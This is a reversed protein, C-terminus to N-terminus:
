NFVLEIGKKLVVLNSIDKAELINILRKSFFMSVAGQVDLIDKTLYSKPLSIKDFSKFKVTDYLRKYDEYSNLSFYTKQEYLKEKDAYVLSNSFDIETGPVIPVFMLYYNIKAGKIEFPFLCYEENSVKIERLCEVFRESVIYKFGFMFPTFVMLDTLRDKKTLVGKIGKLDLGPVTHQNSLFYNANMMLLLSNILEYNEKSELQKENVELQYVGNKVVDASHRIQNHM